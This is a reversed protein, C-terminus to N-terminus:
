VVACRRLAHLVSTRKPAKRLKRFADILKTMVAKTDTRM